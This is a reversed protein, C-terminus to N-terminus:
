VIFHLLGRECTPAPTWRAYSGSSLCTRYISGRLYFGSNCYYYLRARVRATGSCSSTRGNAPAPPCQCLPDIFFRFYM